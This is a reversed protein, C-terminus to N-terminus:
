NVNVFEMIGSGGECSVPSLHNGFKLFAQFDWCYKHEGTATDTGCCTKKYRIDYRVPILSARGNEDISKWKMVPDDIYFGYLPSGDSTYHKIEPVNNNYINSSSFGVMNPNFLFTSQRGLQEDLHLDWNMGFTNLRNRDSQDGCCAGDSAQRMLEYFNTGNVIKFNNIGNMQATLELHYLLKTTGFEAGTFETQAGVINGYTGTPSYWTNVQANAALFAVQEAALKERLEVMMEQIIQAARNVGYLPNGCEIHDLSRNSELVCKEEYDIHVLESKSGTPIDCGYDPYNTTKKATMGCNRLFWARWSICKGFRDFAEPLRRMGQNEMICRTLVNAQRSNDQVNSANWLSALNVVIPLHHDVVSFDGAASVVQPM